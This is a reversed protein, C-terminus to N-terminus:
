HFNETVTLFFFDHGILIPGVTEAKHNHCNVRNLYEESKITLPM